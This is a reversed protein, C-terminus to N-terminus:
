RPPATRANWADLLEPSALVLPAGRGAEPIFELLEGAGREVDRLAQVPVLEKVTRALKWGGARMRRWIRDIGKPRDNHLIEVTGASIAGSLNPPPRGPKRRKPHLHLRM